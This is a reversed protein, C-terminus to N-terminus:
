ERTLCGDTGGPPKSAARRGSPDTGVSAAPLDEVIISSTEACIPVTKIEVLTM